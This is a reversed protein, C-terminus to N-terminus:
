SKRGANPPFRGRRTGVPVEQRLRPSRQRLGPPRNEGPSQFDRLQAPGYGYVTENPDIAEQGLREAWGQEWLQPVGLLRSHIWRDLTRGYHWVLFGISSCEPTPMWRMEDETLGDVARVMANYHQDLCGIVFDKLQM